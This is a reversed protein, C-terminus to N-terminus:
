QLNSKFFTFTFFNKNYIMYLSIRYIARLNAQLNARLNMIANQVRLQTVVTESHYYNKMEEILENNHVSVNYLEVFGVQTKNYYNSAQMSANNYWQIDSITNNVFKNDLRNIKEIITSLFEKNMDGQEKFNNVLDTLKNDCLIKNM